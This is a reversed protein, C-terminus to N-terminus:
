GNQEKEKILKNNFLEDLQEANFNTLVDSMYDVFISYLPSNTAHRTRQVLESAMEEALLDIMDSKDGLGLSILKIQREKERNSVQVISDGIMDRIEKEFEVVSTQIPLIFEAGQNDRTKECFEKAEKLGLGSHTKVIKVYQLLNTVKGICKIKANM